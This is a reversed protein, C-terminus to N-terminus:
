PNLVSPLTEDLDALLRGRAYSFKRLISFFCFFIMGLLSDEPRAVRTPEESSPLWFSCGCEPYVLISRLIPIVREPRFWINFFSSVLIESLRLTSRMGLTDGDFPYPSKLFLRIVIM